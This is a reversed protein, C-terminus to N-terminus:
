KLEYMDCLSRTCFLLESLLARLERPEFGIVERRIFRVVLDRVLFTPHLFQFGFISTQLFFQFLLL